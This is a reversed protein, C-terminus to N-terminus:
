VRVTLSVRSNAALRFNALGFSYFSSINASSTLFRFSSFHRSTGMPPVIRFPIEPPYLFLVEIAKSSMLSGLTMKRSSGLEPRSERVAKMM